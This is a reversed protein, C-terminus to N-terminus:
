NSTPQYKFVSFESCGIPTVLEVGTIEAGIIAESVAQVKCRVELQLSQLFEVLIYSDGAQRIVVEDHRGIIATSVGSPAPELKLELPRVCNTHGTALQAVAQIYAAQRQGLDIASQITVPVFRFKDGPKLQGVKFLEARPVVHSTVFGGLSPADVPFIVSSDGTWNLAGMSYPYDLYNSPHSGGQGGTQRAWQPQPGDLRVGTRSAQHSVSWQSSYIAEVGAATMIDPSDHPGSLCYVATLDWVPVLSAPLEFPEFRAAEAIELVDGAVLQRGQLGGIEAVPSTAKSGLYAPIGHFGGRIALYVRSGRTLRGITLVGGAPVDLRTYMPVPIEDLKVDVSGGALAVIARQHFLMVPGTLTIELLECGPENGAVCNALQAHLPDMPGGEPIGFGIGVRAPFDQITTCSGPSVIELARPTYKFNDLANTTTKGQAFWDTQLVRRLYDTNTVVGQLKTDHLIRVLKDIATSRDADHIMIKALLPDFALSIQTGTQVWTDVRRGPADADADAFDVLQLQGPSPMFNQLPNEAYVRTEIATGSPTLLKLAALDLPQEAQKLMLEVLDIGFRLETIGHEVQLRTNMELFFFDGTDDDVLYEITGASRYKISTALLRSVQFLRERLAPTAEVFPSPSEEIVKQHRRQISCEREGFIAVNGRGDGFVQVEVHRSVPYYRELFVGPNSFLSTGRSVVSAFSARM